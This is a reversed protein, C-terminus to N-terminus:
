NFTFSSFISILLASTVESISEEIFESYDINVDMSMDVPLSPIIQNMRQKAATAVSLVNAQSQPIIGLTIGPVLNTRAFLRDDEAM